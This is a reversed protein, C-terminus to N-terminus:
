LLGFLRKRRNTNNVTSIMATTVNRNKTFVPNRNTRKFFHTVNEDIDNWHKVKEGSVYTICLGRGYWAPCRGVRTWQWASSGKDGSTTYGCMEVVGPTSLGGPSKVRRGIFEWTMNMMGGKSSHSKKSVETVRKTADNQMKLSGNEYRRINVRSTEPLIHFVSRAVSTPRFRFESMPKETEPDTYLLSTRIDLAAEHTTQFVEEEEGGEQSPSTSLSLRKTKMRASNSDNTPLRHLSKHIQVEEVGSLNALKRGTALAIIKGELKWLGGCGGRSQVLQCVDRASWAVKNNVNVKKEGMRVKM